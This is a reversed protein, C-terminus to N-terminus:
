KIKLKEQNAAHSSEKISNAIFSRLEPSTQEYARTLARLYGSYYYIWGNQSETASFSKKAIPRGKADLVEASYKLFSFGYSNPYGIIQPVYGVISLCYMTFKTQWDLQQISLRIIYDPNAPGMILPPIATADPSTVVIDAIGSAQLDMAVLKAIDSEYDYKFGNYNYTFQEPEEITRVYPVFLMYAWYTPTTGAHGRLDLPKMIVIKNTLPTKNETINGKPAFGYTLSPQVMCGQVLIVSAALALLIKIKM